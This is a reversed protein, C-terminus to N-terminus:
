FPLQTQESALSVGYHKSLGDLFEPQGGYSPHRVTTAAVGLASLAVEADRGIAIVARPSLAALLRLLLPECAEREARSHCRNSLPDGPGHPHLPFVNWLMVPQNIARLTRWVVAATREAVLPGTTARRLTQSQMLAACAALHVEDTLALGTRRGGRYGLDRAVWLSEVGRSLAAELVIRLNQRRIAPGRASDHVGCHEAYPNFANEFRLAALDKVFEAVWHRKAKTM